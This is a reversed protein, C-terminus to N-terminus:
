EPILAAAYMYILHDLCQQLGLSIPQLRCALLCSEPANVVPHSIFFKFIWYGPSNREEPRGHNTSLARNQYYNNKALKLRSITTSCRGSLLFTPCHIPGM